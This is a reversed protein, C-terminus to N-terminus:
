GEQGPERVPLDLAPMSKVPLRKLLSFFHDRAAYWRRLEEGHAWHARRWLTEGLEAKVAPDDTSCAPVFRVPRHTIGARQCAECHCPADEFRVRSAYQYDAAEEPSIPVAAAMRPRKPISEIWEAPKPFRKGTVIWQEAGATVATLPWRKLAKFYAASVQAIDRPEGLLRFLRRLKNFIEGFADDDSDTM